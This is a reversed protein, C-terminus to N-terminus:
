TRKDRRARQKKDTKELQLILRDPLRMDIVRLGKQLINHRRELESFERFAAFPNEEPLNVFIGNDMLLNWRRNGVRIGAVVKSQINPEAELMAILTQAHTQAGEGVVMFLDSFDKTNQYPIINGERDIVRLANDHQWIALPVRETISVFLTSPLHREISVQKIWPLAHLREYAGEMDIEFIPEGPFIGLSNFIEEESTRDHGSIEINKVHLGYGSATRILKNEVNIIMNSIVNHQWIYYFGFLGITVILLLVFYQTSQWAVTKRISARRNRLADPSRGKRTKHPKRSKPKKRVRAM